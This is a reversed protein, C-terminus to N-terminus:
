PTLSPSCAMEGPPVLYMFWLLSSSWDGRFFCSLSRNINEIAFLEFINESYSDLVPIGQYISQALCSPTPPLSSVVKPKFVNKVISIGSWRWLDSHFDVSPKHNCSSIPLVRKKPDKTKSPNPTEGTSAFFLNAAQWKQKETCSYSRCLSLPLSEPRVSPTSVFSPLFSSKINRCCCCCLLLLLLRTNM